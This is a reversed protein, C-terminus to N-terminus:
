KIDICVVDATPPPVNGDPAQRVSSAMNSNFIWFRILRVFGCLLCLELPNLNEFVDIIM